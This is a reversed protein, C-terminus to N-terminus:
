FASTRRARVIFYIILMDLALFLLIYPIWNIRSHPLNVMPFQNKKPNEDFTFLITKKGSEDIKVIRPGALGESTHISELIYADGSFFDIGCPYWEDKSRYFTEKSGDELIKLIQKGATEAIYIYGDSGKTIGLLVDNHNDKPRDLKTILDQAIVEPNGQLDIKVIIGNDVGIDPAYVMGEKDVYITQNWRFEFDSIARIQGTLNRAKLKKNERVGFIVEENSSWACNGGFFARFNHEVLLTDISGNKNIRILVHPDEGHATIINGESDLDVNHAHIDKILQHINGKNDLKWISGEDRLIDPFYINGEKDIVIGWPPHATMVQNCFVMAM